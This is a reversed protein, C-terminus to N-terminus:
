LDYGGNPIKRVLDILYGERFRSPDVHDNDPAHVHGVYGSAKVWASDSARKPNSFDWPAKNPVDVRHRILETLNALRKYMVDSWQPIESTRGCIEIQICNARNTQYGDSSDNGLARGAQNLPILQVVTPHSRGPRGGICFHPAARKDRLVDVMADVSNWSSETTHFCLKWGGGTFSGADELQEREIHLDWHHGTPLWLKDM